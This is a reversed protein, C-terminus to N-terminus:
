NILVEYYPITANINQMNDIAYRESLLISGKPPTLDQNIKNVDKLFYISEYFRNSINQSIYPTLNLRLSENKLFEFSQYKKLNGFINETQKAYTSYYYNVFDVYNITMFFAICFIILSYYKKTKLKIFEIGNICILVFIPILCMLRSARHISGVTGYLLPALFFAALLFKSNKNKYISYYTGLLFLPLTSLLFFGHIGTSHYLTEDGKIFLFTPDFSSLYPYIFNYVSNIKVTAGGLISGSYINNLIPSILIFPLSFISFLLISRLWAKPKLLYIISLLYWIPFIARMGKYTYFTIGLSIASIAIYKNKSKKNYLFLYFIWIITFPIPMINDLALHSQIMILPNTLFLVAAYISLKNSYENKSFKYLMFISLIIILVSSFRLLFVSPNFIKFLITLYYQTVPQKWDTGNNSLVFVPLLRNNEDRLTRSLLVANYGFAIEDSTLGTPVDLIRYSYFFALIIAALSSILIYFLKTNITKKV